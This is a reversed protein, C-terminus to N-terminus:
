EAFLSFCTRVFYPVFRPLKPHRASIVRNETVLSVPENDRSNSYMCRDKRLKSSKKAVYKCVFKKRNKKMESEPVLILRLHPLM